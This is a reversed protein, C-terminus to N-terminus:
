PALATGAPGDGAETRLRLGEEVTALRTTVVQDSAALGESIYVFAEDELVVEVPQIVLRGDVMLWVTDNSRLHARSIRAVDSLRRGEIRCEVYEGLLLSPAGAASARALPDSVSVLVRALRTPGELEGILRLLRGTRYRGDPWATRNRVRVASGARDPPEFDLWVLDALPVTAEVWYHEIGVLRALAQGSSVQSGLDVERSLIQADFPADIRTRELELEAQALAARASAVAAEAARRQPERLVLARREPPLDRDFREYDARAAQQEAQEIELAALAEELASRRQAVTNEFDAEDLRLLVEGQDVFSGPEFRESREVVEGAVRSGLTVERAPLVRGMAQILPRFDGVEPATVDVLAASERVGGEREAVPETSYILVILAIGAAVLALCLLLTSRVSGSQLRRLPCGERGARDLQLRSLKM